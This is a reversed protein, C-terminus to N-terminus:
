YRYKEKTRWTIYMKSVKAELKILEKQSAEHKKHYSLVQEMDKALDEPIISHIEQIHTLADEVQRNFDHIRASLLHGQRESLVESFKHWM